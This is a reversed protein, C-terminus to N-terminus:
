RRDTDAACKRELYSGIEDLSTVRPYATEAYVGAADMLLAEMGVGRAGLFDVSYVDGIYISREAAVDLSRLAALFIRPKPKECGCLHSDTVSEFYHGLDLEDLLKGITGDSNSIVGLRYRPRLSQLAEQTGPRVTRWNIGRRTSAALADLLAPDHAVGLQELLHAYFTQWYQADVGFNGHSHGEDLRHKAHREAAFLQEQTPHVDFGALPALTLPLSPLVLTFGADFFIAEIAM